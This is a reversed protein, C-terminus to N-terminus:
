LRVPMLMGFWEGRESRCSWRAAALPDAGLSFEVCPTVKTMVKRRDRRDERMYECARAVLDLTALYCTNFGQVATHKGGGNELVYWYRPFGDVADFGRFGIAPRSAVGFDAAGEPCMGVGDTSVAIVHGKLLGKAAEEIATRPVAVSFDLKGQTVKCVALQHGNTAAVQNREGDFYVASIPRALDDSAYALLALAERKTLFCVGNFTLM